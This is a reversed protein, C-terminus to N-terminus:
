GTFPMPTYVLGFYARPLVHRPLPPWGCDLPRLGGLGTLLCHAATAATLQDPGALLLDRLDGRDIDPAGMRTVHEAMIPDGWRAPDGLRRVYEDVVHPWGPALWWRWCYRGAYLALLAIVEPTGYRAAVSNWRDCFMWVHREFAVLQAPDPAIETLTRGDPLRREPNALARGAADVIDGMSGVADGTVTAIRCGTLVARLLRTSAANARMMESNSIRGTQHWNEVPGDRWALRAVAVAVLEAVQNWDRLDIKLAAAAEDFLVPDLSAPAAM